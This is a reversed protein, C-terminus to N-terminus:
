PRTIVVRSRWTGDRLLQFKRFLTGTTPARVQANKRQLRTVFDDPMERNQLGHNKENGWFCLFNEPGLGAWSTGSILQGKM